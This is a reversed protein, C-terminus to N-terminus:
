FILFSSNKKDFKLKLKLKEKIFGRKKKTKLLYFTLLIYYNISNFSVRSYIKFRSVFNNKYNTQQETKNRDKQIPIVKLSRVIRALDHNIPSVARQEIPAGRKRL